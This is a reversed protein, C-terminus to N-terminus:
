TAALEFGRRVPGVGCTEGLLGGDSTVLEGILTVLHDGDSLDSSSTTTDVCGATRALREAM